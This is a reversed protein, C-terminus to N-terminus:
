RDGKEESDSEVVEAEEVDDAVIKEESIASDSEELDDAIKEETIASDSEELNETTESQATDDLEPLEPLEPVSEEIEPEVENDTEDAAETKILQYSNVEDALVNSEKLISRIHKGQETIWDSIIKNDSKLSDLQSEAAEGHEDQIAAVSKFTEVSGALEDINYEIEEFSSEIDGVMSAGKQSNEIAKKILIATEKAANSSLHSLNRVEEAVVAFGKGHQGARAAEVAANLALLNTQFAIDEITSLIKEVDKSSQAIDHMAVTMEQMLTVGNQAASRSDNLNDHGAEAAESARKSSEVLESVVTEFENCITVQASLSEEISSETDGISNGISAVNDASSTLINMTNNINVFTEKLLLLLESASPFEREIISFDGSKLRTLEQIINEEKQLLEDIYKVANGYEGSNKSFFELLLQVEGVKSVSALSQMLKEFRHRIDANRKFIKWNWHLLAIAAIPLVALLLLTLIRSIKASELSEKVETQARQLTRVSEMQEKLFRDRSGDNLVRNGLFLAGFIIVLTTLLHPILPIYEGMKKKEFLKM